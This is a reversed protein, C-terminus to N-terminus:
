RSTEAGASRLKEGMRAFATSAAQPEAGLARRCSVAVIGLLRPLREEDSGPLQAAAYIASLAFMWTDGWCERFEENGLVDFLDLHDGEDYKLLSAAEESSRTPDREWAILREHLTTPSPNFGRTANDIVAETGPAGAAAARDWIPMLHELAGLASTVSLERGWRTIGWTWRELGRDVEDIAVDSWTWSPEEPVSPKVPPSALLDDDSRVKDVYRLLADRGLPM